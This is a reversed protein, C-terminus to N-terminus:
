GNNRNINYFDVFTEITFEKIESIDDNILRFFCRPIEGLNLNSKVCHDCSKSHNNQNNPNLKCTLNPCACFHKQNEM